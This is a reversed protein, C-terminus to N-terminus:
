RVGVRPLIVKFFVLVSIICVLLAIMANVIEGNRLYSGCFIAGGSMGSIVVMAIMTVLTFFGVIKLIDLLSKPQSKESENM